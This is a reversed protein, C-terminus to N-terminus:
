STTCAGEREVSVGAAGAECANGYTKGDCGCVPKYIRTCMPTRPTCVGAGDAVRCQGDAHKCYDNADACTFGAIGGCMGGTPQARSQPAGPASTQPPAAPGPGADAGGQQCGVVLLAAGALAILASRFM